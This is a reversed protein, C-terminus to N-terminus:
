TKCKWLFFPLLLFFFEGKSATTNFVMEHVLAELTGGRVWKLDPNEAKGEDVVETGEGVEKGGIGEEEGELVLAPHSVLGTGWFARQKRRALANPAALGAGNGDHLGLGGVEDEEEPIVSIPFVSKAATILESPLKYLYLKSGRLAAGYPKWTRSLDLQESVKKGPFQPFTTTSSYDIKRQLLGLHVITQSDRKRNGTENHGPSSDFGYDSSTSGFQVPSNSLKSSSAQQPPSFNALQFNPTSASSPFPVSEKHPSKSRKTFPLPLNSTSAVPSYLPLAINPPSTPSNLRDMMRPTSGSTSMLSLAASPSLSARNPNKGIRQLPRPPAQEEADRLNSASNSLPLAQFNDSPSFSRPPM